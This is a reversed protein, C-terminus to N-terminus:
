GAVGTRGLRAKGHPRGLRWAGTGEVGVVAAGFVEEAGVGGVLCGVRDGSGAAIVGRALEDHPRQGIGRGEVRRRRGQTQAVPQQRYTLVRYRRLLLLRTGASSWADVRGLAVTDDVCGRRYEDPERD